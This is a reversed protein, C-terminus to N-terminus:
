WFDREQVYTFEYHLCGTVLSSELEPIGHLRMTEKGNQVDMALQVENPIHARWGCHRFYTSCVYNPAQRILGILQGISGASRVNVGTLQRYVYM